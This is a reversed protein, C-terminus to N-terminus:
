RGVCRVIESSREAIAAPVRAAQISGAEPRRRGTGMDAANVVGPLFAALPPSQSRTRVPHASVPPLCTAASRRPTASCPRMTELGGDIRGAARAQVLVNGLATAEVPGALVPLGCADATLQCV